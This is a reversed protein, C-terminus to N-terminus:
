TFLTNLQCSGFSFRKFPEAKKQSIFNIIGFNEKRFHYFFFPKLISKKAKHDLIFVRLSSM